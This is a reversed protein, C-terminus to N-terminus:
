ELGGITDIPWLRLIARGKIMNSEVIGITNNDIEEVNDCTLFVQNENVTVNKGDSLTVTDGPLGAVRRIPNDEEYESGYAYKKLVVIQGMEPMGRKDSYTDKYLVLFDGEKITPKMASGEHVEPAIIGTMIVALIGAIIYPRYKLM